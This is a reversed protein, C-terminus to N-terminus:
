PATKDFSILTRLAETVTDYVGRGLTEAITLESQRARISVEAAIRAGEDTVTLPRRRSDFPDRGAECLKEAILSEAIRQANMPDTGLQRAVSRVGLGPQAAVVRLVAAQPATLGLDALESEWRRRRARHAVGLLFGIGDPGQPTSERGNGGTSKDEDTSEALAIRSEIGPPVHGFVERYRQRIVEARESERQDSM